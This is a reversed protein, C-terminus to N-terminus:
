PLQRAAGKDASLAMTAYVKLANSVERQRSRPQWGAAERRARRAALTAEDVLLEISRNPISIEILDGDEM